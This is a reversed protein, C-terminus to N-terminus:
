NISPYSVGLEPQITNCDM